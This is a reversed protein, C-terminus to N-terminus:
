SNIDYIDKLKLIKEVRKILLKDSMLDLCEEANYDAWVKLNQLIKYIKKIFDDNSKTEILLKADLYKKGNKRERLEREQSLVKHFLSYYAKGVFVRRYTENNNCDKENSLERAFEFFCQSLYTNDRNM